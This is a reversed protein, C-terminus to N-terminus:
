NICSLFLIVFFKLLLEYFIKQFLTLMFKGAVKNGISIGGISTQESPRALVHATTGQKPFTKIRLNTVGQPTTSALIWYKKYILNSNFFYMEANIILYNNCMSPTVMHTAMPPKSMRKVPQVPQSQMIFTFKLLKSPFLNYRLLYQYVYKKLLIQNNCKSFKQKAVQGQLKISYFYFYNFFFFQM